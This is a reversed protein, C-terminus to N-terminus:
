LDEVILAYEILLGTQRDNDEIYVLDGLNMGYYKVLADDISYRQLELKYRPHKQIYHDKEISNLARFVLPQTIHNAMNEIGTEEYSFHTIKINNFASIYKQAHSTMFDTVLIIIKFHQAIAFKIINKVFDMGTNQSSGKTKKSPKETEEPEEVPEQPESNPVFEEIQMVDGFIKCDAFVALVKDGTVTETCMQWHNFTKDFVTNINKKYGRDYFMQKVTQMSRIKPIALSSSGLGLEEM